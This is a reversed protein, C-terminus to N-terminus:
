LEHACGGSATRALDTNTPVGDDGSLTFQEIVSPTAAAAQEQTGAAISAKEVYPAAPAGTATASQQVAPAQRVPPPTVFAAAALGAVLAVAVAGALRPRLRDTGPQPLTTGSAQSDTQEQRIRM